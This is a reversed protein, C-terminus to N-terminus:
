PLPCVPPPTALCPKLQLSCSFIYHRRTSHAADSAYVSVDEAIEHDHFNHGSLCTCRVRIRGSAKEPAHEAPDHQLYHHGLDPLVFAHVFVACTGRRRPQEAAARPASIGPEHVPDGVWKGVVSDERVTTFLGFGVITVAWGAWNVAHYRQSLTMVAGGVIAFPSISLALLICCIAVPTHIYRAPLIHAFNYPRPSSASVGTRTKLIDSPIASRSPVKVEYIAFVVILTLGIILPALVQVSAWSYRVGGWM